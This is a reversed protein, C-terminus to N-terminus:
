GRAAAITAATVADNSATVRECLDNIALLEADNFREIKFALTSFASGPQQAARRRLMAPLLAAEQTNRVALGRSFEALTALDEDSLGTARVLAEVMARYRAALLDLKKAHTDGAARCSGSGLFALTADHLTLTSRTRSM